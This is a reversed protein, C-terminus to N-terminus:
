RAIAIACVVITAHDYIGIFQEIQSSAGTSLNRLLSAPFHIYKLPCGDGQAINRLITLVADTAISSESEKM